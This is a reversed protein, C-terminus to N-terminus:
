WQEVRHNLREYMNKPEGGRIWSDEIKTVRRGFLNSVEDIMSLSVIHHSADGDPSPSTGTIERRRDSRLVTGRKDLSDKTHDVFM